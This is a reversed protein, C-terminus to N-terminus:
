LWKVLWISFMYLLCPPLAAATLTMPDWTPTILAVIIFIVVVVHRWYEILWNRSVLGIKNIFITIVPVQFCIGFVLLMKALFTAAKSYSWLAATGPPQFQLFFEFFIPSMYFGLAAGSFFLLVSFPVLVLSYRREKHTLAPEVFAWVQWLVYPLV